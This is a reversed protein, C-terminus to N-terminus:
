AVKARLLRKQASIRNQSDIYVALLIVAGRAIEQYFSNVNRLVMINSLVSLILIGIFAGSLTGKGGSLSVGGLVVASIVQFEFGIGANPQGTSMRAALLMATIATLAGSIIYAWRKIKDVDIGSLKAAESCGGTAYLYRGYATRALVFWLIAGFVVALLLPVPFPGVYGTGLWTFGPHKVQVSAGNTTVYAAGRFIAMTGLTAILPTIRAKTVLVSNLLGILAGAVVVFAIAVFLSGTASIVLACWVGILGQTSGVSLDIDGLLIILVMGMGTIAVLSASRLVNMINKVTLFYPSLLTAVVCLGLFCLFLAVQEHQLFRRLSSGNTNM